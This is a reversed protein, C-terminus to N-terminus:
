LHLTVLLTGTVLETDRPPHSFIGKHILSSLTSCISNCVKRGQSGMKKMHLEMDLHQHYSCLRRAAAGFSWQFVLAQCGLKSQQDTVCKLLCIDLNRARAWFHKNWNMTKLNIQRTGENQRSWWSCIISLSMNAKLLCFTDTVICLFDDM